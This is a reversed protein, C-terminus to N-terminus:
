PFPRTPVVANASTVPSGNGNHPKRHKDKSNLDLSQCSLFSGRRNDEQTSVTDKAHKMEM